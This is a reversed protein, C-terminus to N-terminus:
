KFSRSGFVIIAGRDTTNGPFILDALGDGNFDGISASNRGALGWPNKLKFYLGEGRQLASFRVVEPFNGERGFLLMCHGDTDRGINHGNSTCALVDSLGDGNVDGATSVTRTTGRANADFVLRFGNSGDVKGLGFDTRGAVKSSVFVGTSPAPFAEPRKSPHVFVGGAEGAMFPGTATAIAGPPLNWGRPGLRLVRVGGPPDAISVSRPIPASQGFVIAAIKSRGITVFDDFGDGDFDGASGMDGCMDGEDRVEFSRGDVAEDLKLGRHLRKRGYIVMCRQDHGGGFLRVAFEAFGDGNIDGAPALKIIGSPAASLLVYDDTEPANLRLKYAGQYKGKGYFVFAVKPCIKSWCFVRVGLEDFGDGNIDGVVSATVASVERGEVEVVFGDGGDLKSLDISGTRRRDTGFVVYIKARASSSKSTSGLLVVDKLGDGNMDGSGGYERLDFTGGSVGIAVGDPPEITDLDIKAAAQSWAPIPAACTFGM